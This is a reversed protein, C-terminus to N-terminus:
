LSTSLPFPRFCFTSSEGPSVIMTGHCRVDASCVNTRHDNGREQDRRRDDRLARLGIAAEPRIRGHRGSLHQIEGDAQSM